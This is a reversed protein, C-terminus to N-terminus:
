LINDSSVPCGLSFPNHRLAVSLTDFSAYHDDVFVDTALITVVEPGYHCSEAVASSVVVFRPVIVACTAITHTGIVSFEYIRQGIKRDLYCLLVNSCIADNDLDHNATRVKAGPTSKRSSSALQLKREAADVCEVRIVPECALANVIIAPDNESLEAKKAFGKASQAANDRGKRM